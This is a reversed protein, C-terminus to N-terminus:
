LEEDRDKIELKFQWGEYTSLIRGFQHWTVPKGDIVLLPLQGDSEDDWEIQGRAEMDELVESSGYFQETDIHKRSLERRMRGLLKNFLKQVENPNGGIAFEYGHDKGPEFSEISLRHGFLQVIFEFKHEEGDVDVLLVPAFKPNKFDIGISAAMEQNYCDLCLLRGSNDDATTFNVARERFEIIKGCADCREDINENEM